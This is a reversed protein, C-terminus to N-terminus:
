AERAGLLLEMARIVVRNPKLHIVSL